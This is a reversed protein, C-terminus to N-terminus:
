SIVIDKWDIEGIIRIDTIWICEDKEVFPNYPKVTSIEGAPVNLWCGWVPRVLPKKEDGIDLM